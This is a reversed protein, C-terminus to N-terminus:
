KKTFFQILYVILSFLSTAGVFALTIKTIANNIKENVYEKLLNIKNDIISTADDTTTQSDKKM